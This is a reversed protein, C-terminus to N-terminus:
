GVRWSLLVVSNCATLSDVKDTLLLVYLEKQHSHIGSGLGWKNKQQKKKKNHKNAPAGTQAALWPAPLPSASQPWDAPFICVRPRTALRQYCCTILLHVCVCLYLCGCDLVHSKWGECCHGYEMTYGYPMTISCGQTSLDSQVTFTFM